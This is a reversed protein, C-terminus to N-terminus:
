FHFRLGVKFSMGSFDIQAEKAAIIGAENPRTERIFLVSHTREELIQRQILYLTGEQTSIKGSSDQFNEKGKFGEIKALHGTIEAFLSLNSSYSKSFGLSGSLGFGQANSKGEWQQTLNETQFLYTYSYQAFYYSIGGKVYLYSVPYYSLFLNIPTARLNPKTLLISSSTGQPYDVQSENKAQFHESGIGWSLSESLPFSVEMGLVYGWHVSGMNGEGQIGLIDEFLDALGKIGLNLDGGRVHNVGGMISLSFTRPSTQQKEEPEPKVPRIKEIRQPKKEEPYPEIVIVLSEHVYGSVATEQKLMLQVAFWDEKKETANLITGQPVQRIIISSIDPELRINAQDAVVKLKIITEQGWTKQTSTFLLILFLAFYALSGKVLPSKRQLNVEIRNYFLARSSDLFLARESGAPKMILKLSRSFIHNLM